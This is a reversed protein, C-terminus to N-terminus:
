RTSAFVPNQSVFLESTTSYYFHTNALVDKNYDMMATFYANQANKPLFNPIIAMNFNKGQKFGYNGNVSKSITKKVNNLEYTIVFTTSWGLFMTGIENIVEINAVLYKDEAKVPKVNTLKENLNFATVKKFQRNANLYKALTEKKNSPNNDTDKKTNIPIKIVTGNEKAFETLFINKENSENIRLDCQDLFLDVQDYNYVLIGKLTFAKYNNSIGDFNNGKIFIKNKPNLATTNNFPLYIGKGDKFVSSVYVADSIVSEFHNGEFNVTANSIEMDVIYDPSKGDAYKINGEMNNNRINVEGKAFTGRIIRSNDHCMNNEFIFGWALNRIGVPGGKSQIDSFFVCEDNQNFANQRLQIFAVLYQNQASFKIAFNFGTFHCREIIFPWTPGGWESKFLIATTNGTQRSQLTRFQIDAIRIPDRVNKDFIIGTSNKPIIFESSNINDTNNAKNEVNVWSEERLLAGEGILQVGGNKFSVSNKLLYRGFPIFLTKRKNTECFDIAKQFADSDDSIGDGKAGFDKLSVVWKQNGIISTKNQGLILVSFLM